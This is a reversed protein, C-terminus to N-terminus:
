IARRVETSGQQGQTANNNSSNNYSSNSNGTNGNNSCNINGTGNYSNGNNGNENGNNDPHFSMFHSELLVSEVAVFSCLPCPFQSINGNVNGIGDGNIGTNVYSESGFNGENGQSNGQPNNRRRDASGKLSNEGTM